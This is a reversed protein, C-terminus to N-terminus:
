VICGAILPKIKSAGLTGWFCLCASWPLHQIHYINTVVLFNTNLNLTLLLNITLAPLTYFVKQRAVILEASSSPSVMFQSKHLCLVIMETIASWHAADTWRYTRQVAFQWLKILSIFVHTRSRLLCINHISIQISCSSYRCFVKRRRWGIDVPHAQNQELNRRTFLSKKRPAM